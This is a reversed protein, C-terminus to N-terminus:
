RDIAVRNAGLVDGGSCPVFGNAEADDSSNDGSFSEAAFNGAALAGADEGTRRQRASRIRDHHLLVGADFWIRQVPGM